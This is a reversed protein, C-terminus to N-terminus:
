SAVITYCTAAEFSVKTVPMCSPQEITEVQRPLLLDQVPHM